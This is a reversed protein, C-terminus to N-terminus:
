AHDLGREAVEILDVVKLRLPKLIAFRSFKLLSVILALSKDLLVRTQRQNPSGDYLWYLILGMQYLWLLKPMHATLDEPVRVGGPEAVARAFYAQDRDRIHKTADSFPSLRNRPDAGHRLLAGLFARNPRFYDFKVGMVAAIRGEFDTAGALAEEIRPTMAEMAQEYFAMVLDEKSAFYYYANGLSVGAEAAIARMTTSEFGQRRFLNLAVELIQNRTEESKRTTKMPNVFQVHEFILM